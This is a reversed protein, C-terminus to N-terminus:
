KLVEGLAKKLNGQIEPLYEDRVLSTMVQINKRRVNDLEEVGVKGKQWEKNKTKITYDEPIVMQYRFYSTRPDGAAITEIQDHMLKSTGSMMTSILPEIWNAAGWNSMTKHDYTQHIRGTGLSVLVIEPESGVISRVYNLVALSPNNCCVGGDVCTVEVNGPTNKGNKSVVNKFKKSPLFTPAASTARAVDALQYNCGNIGGDAVADLSSFFIPGWPAAMEVASIYVPKVCDALTLEYGNQETFSKIVKELGKESYKPKSLASSVVSIAGKVEGAVTNKAKAFFSQLDKAPADDDDDILPFIEAGREQYLKVLGPGDTLPSLKKSGPKDPLSCLVSLIAGTSTGALLDFMEAARQGTLKEMHEILLAPILGRIGGGDISLITIKKKGQLAKIRSPHPKPFCPFHYSM